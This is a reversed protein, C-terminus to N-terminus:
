LSTQLSVWCPAVLRGRQPGAGGTCTSDTRPRFLVTQSRLGPRAAASPDGPKFGEEELQLAICCPLGLVEPELQIIDSLIKKQIGHAVLYRFTYKMVCTQLFHYM